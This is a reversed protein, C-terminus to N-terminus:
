DLLVGDGRGVLEPPRSRRGIHGRGHTAGRHAGPPRAVFSRDGVATLSREFCDAALDAM